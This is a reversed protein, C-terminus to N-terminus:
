GKGHYNPRAVQGESFSHHLEVVGGSGDANGEITTIGHAGVSKVLAVHQDGFVLLDGPRAKTPSLLGYMYGHTGTSAWQRIEAVSATRVSTPAGGDAAATTAFMACWPEGKMGFTGELKNLEPGLNQGFSEADKGVHAEGFAVARAGAGGGAAGPAPISPTKPTSSGGGQEYESPSPTKTALLGTAFLPNSATKEGDAAVLQGLLSRQQAQKFAAQDVGPLSPLKPGASAAAPTVTTAATLNHGLYEAKFTSDTPFNHENYGFRNLASYTVDIKRGTWPAPGLDTQKLVASRGTKTDTLRWYGGLTARNYIAIGPTSTPAGSATTQSTSGDNPGGFWSIRGTLSQGSSTPIAPINM